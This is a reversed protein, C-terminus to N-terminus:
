LNEDVPLPIYKEKPQYKIDHNEMHWIGRLFITTMKLSPKNAILEEVRAAREKSLYISIVTQKKM